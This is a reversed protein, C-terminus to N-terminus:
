YHFLRKLDRETLNSTTVKLSSALQTAIDVIDKLWCEQIVIVHIFFPKSQHSNGVLINGNSDYM